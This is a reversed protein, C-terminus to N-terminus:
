VLRGQTWEGCVGPWVSIYRRPTARETELPVRSPRRKASAAPSRASAGSTPGADVAWAAFTSVRGLAPSTVPTLQVGPWHMATPSDVCGCAGCYQVSECPAQSTVVGSPSVSRLLNVSTEHGEDPMHMPIPRVVLSVLKAAISEPPVQVSVCSGTPMPVSVDTDQADVVHHTATPPMEAAPKASAHSPVVHLGIDTAAEVGVQVSPPSLQGDAVDHTATPLESDVGSLSLQSPEVQVIVVGAGTACGSSETPISATEHVLALEHRATPHVYPQQPENLPTASAQFPALQVFTGILRASSALTSEPTEQVLAVAHTTTPLRPGDSTWCKLARPVTPIQFPTRIADTPMPGTPSDVPSEPTEHV